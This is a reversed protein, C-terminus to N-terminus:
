SVLVTGPAPLELTILFHNIADTTAGGLGWSTHGDGNRTLLRNNEVEELMGVAWAYSTSPDRIANVMLVPNQTQVKLKAPPNALPAPWGICSAQLTWSQSAGKNLPAFAEGVRMKAQFDEFSSARSPWDQCGITIGAYLSRDDESALETSLASADGESAKLLATAFTVRSSNKASLLLGQANFRIEEETVNLRCSSEECDPAPIPTVTANKLISYWLKEVDQGKLPSSENTGAWKFFAILEAAYATSEILLNSSESQSHQLMGDLVMARINDPYLQAYQSGLQTGYSLGLWNMKEGLAARVAEHDKAASITDLHNLLDGTRNLCSEGLRRNKDVLRDYDEQTTPFLSVRENWIEPDCDCQASLNVGRPDVGIIDFRNLLESSVNATGEAITAVKHTASGGPGGPNIFLSGIRQATSNSPRPLRVIGLSFSDSGNGADWNIPVSLNACQLNSPLWPKDDCNTWSIGSRPIHTSTPISLAPVALLAVYFQIFAM